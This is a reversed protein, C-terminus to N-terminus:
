HGDKREAEDLELSAPHPKTAMVFATLTPRFYWVTDAGLGAAWAIAGAEDLPGNAKMQSTPLDATTTLVILSPATM